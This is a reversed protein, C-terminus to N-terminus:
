TYRPLAHAMQIDPIPVQGLTKQLEMCKGAFRMIKSTKDQQKAIYHFEM